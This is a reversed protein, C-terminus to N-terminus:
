VRHARMSARSGSVTAVSGIRGFRGGEVGDNHVARVIGRLAGLTFLMARVGGGSLSVAVVRSADERPVRAEATDAAEESTV